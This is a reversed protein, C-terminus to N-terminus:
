RWLRSPPGDLLQRRLAAVERERHVDGTAQNELSMSHRVRSVQDRAIREARQEITDELPQRPVLAYVLECDLAEAYRRLTALTIDGRAESREADTVAAQSVGVSSALQRTTMGLAQRVAHLWGRDPAPGAVARWRDLTKDLQQIQLSRLM